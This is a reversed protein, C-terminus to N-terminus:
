AVAEVVPAEGGVDIPKESGDGDLEGAENDVFEDEANDKGVKATEDNKGEGKIGEANLVEQFRPDDDIPPLQSEGRKWITSFAIALGVVLLAWGWGNTSAPYGGYPNRALNVFQYIFLFGTGIPVTVHLDLRCLWNPFLSRGNPFGKNGITAARLALALRKWGMGFNFIFGECCCIFLLLMTGIYMDIM